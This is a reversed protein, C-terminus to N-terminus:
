INNTLTFLEILSLCVNEWSTKLVLEDKNRSWIITTIREFHERLAPPMIDKQTNEEVMIVIPKKLRCAQLFEDNCYDSRCFANTVIIIVGTSMKLCRWIEDNISFGPRFHRDGDCLLERKVGTTKELGAQLHPALEERVVKNDESSFSLFVAFEYGPKRDVFYQILRKITANRKWKGVCRFVCVTLWSVSTVFVIGLSTGLIIDRKRNCLHTLNEFTTNDITTTEGSNKTCQLRQFDALHKINDLLVGIFKKNDCSGCLLKNNVLNVLVKSHQFLTSLETLSTGDLTFIRNKSLNLQLLLKLHFLKFHIQSMQNVSLDLVTLFTNNSLIDDPLSQLRNSSLNLHRLNYLPKLLINFFSINNVRMRELKNQSLDLHKLTYLCGLTKPSLYRMANGSLSVSELTPKKCIFEIDVYALKNNELAIEKLNSHDTSMFRVNTINQFIHEPETEMGKCLENILGTKLSSFVRYADLNFVIDSLTHVYSFECIRKGHSSVESIDIFTLNRCPQLNNDRDIGVANGVFMGHFSIKKLHSCSRLLDTINLFSASSYSLDLVSIPRESIMKSFSSDIILGQHNVAVGALILVELCPLMESALCLTLDNKSFDTSNTLDLQVLRSLGSCSKTQFYVMRTHIHLQQLRALGTFCFPTFTIAKTQFQNIIQLSTINGWGDGEFSSKFLNVSETFELSVNQIGNKITNPIVNVCRLLKNPLTICTGECSDRSVYFIFLFLFYVGCCVKMMM